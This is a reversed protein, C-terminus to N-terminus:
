AMEKETAGWVEVFGTLAGTDVENKVVQKGLKVSRIALLELKSLSRLLGQAIFCNLWSL